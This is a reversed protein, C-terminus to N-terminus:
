KFEKGEGITSNTKKNKNKKGWRITVEVNDVALRRRSRRDFSRKKSTYGDYGVSEKVRM